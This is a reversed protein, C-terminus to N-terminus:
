RRWDLASANVARDDVYVHALLKGLIIGDFAIHHHNLYSELLEYDAWPRSSHVYIKFGAQRLEELKLLNDYIPEGPLALPNDPTWSSHAITGDFDVAAWKLDTRPAPPYSM